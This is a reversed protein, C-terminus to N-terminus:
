ANPEIGFLALVGTLRSFFVLNPYTISVAANVGIVLGTNPEVVPGGSMGPYLEGVAAHEDGISGRMQSPLCVYKSQGLPFGCAITDHGELVLSLAANPLIGVRKYDSFDGKLLGLDVRMSYGVVKVPQTREIYMTKGGNGELCHGATLAYNNDIVFGSCIFQDKDLFIRIVPVKLISELNPMVEPAYPPLNLERYFGPRSIHGPVYMSWAFLAGVAVSLVSLLINKKM